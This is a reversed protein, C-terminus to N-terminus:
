GALACARRGARVDRSPRTTPRAGDGGDVDGPMAGDVLELFPYLDLSDRPVTWDLEVGALEAFPRLFTFYVYAGADIKPAANWGPSPATCSAQATKVAAALADLRRRRDAALEGPEVDFLAFEVVDVLYDRPRDGVDRLRHRAPRRGRARVGRARRLVAPGRRDRCEVSLAVSRSENFARLLLSGATPSCTRVPTRTARLPHRVLALLSVVHAVRQAPHRWAAAITTSPGATRSRDRDVRGRVADVIGGADWAQVPATTAASPAAARDWFDFVIAMRRADDDWDIMGATALVKRGILAFNPISWLHM